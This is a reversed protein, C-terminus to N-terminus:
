KNLVMMNTMPQFGLSEYISRGNESTELYIKGCYHAKAQGVLWSIISSGITLGRFEPRVYINMLYACKGTHNDPSPMEEQYCIGGCGVIKGDLVAFCGEFTGAAMGRRIYRRNNAELVPELAPDLPAFVDRLVEMRWKMYLALDDAWVRRMELRNKQTSKGLDETQDVKVDAGQQTTLNLTDKIAKM